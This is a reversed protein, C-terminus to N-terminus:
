QEIRADGADFVICFRLECSRERTLREALGATAPMEIAMMESPHFYKASGMHIGTFARLKTIGIQRIETNRMTGFYKARIKKMERLADRKSLPVDEDSVEGAARPEVQHSLHPPKVTVPLPWRGMPGYQGLAM